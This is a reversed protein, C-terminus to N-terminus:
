PLKVDKPLPGGVQPSGGGLLDRAFGMEMLDLAPSAAVQRLGDESGKADGSIRRDMAAYFLGETRQSLTRAAAVLEEGRLRGAGFAALKATWKGDDVVSSFVRAPAGDSPARLQRELLRVWLAYYVVDELALDAALARTLGDRAAALDGRVFARGVLHGITAAAQGKDRSADRV